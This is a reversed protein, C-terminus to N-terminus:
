LAGTRVQGDLLREVADRPADCLGTHPASTQLMDSRPSVLWHWRERAPLNGIPGSDPGGSCVREFAAIHERVVRLDVSPFLALLRAEDLAFRAALFDHDPCFLTVGVNIFEEREVRPVVRVVAYDFSRLTPM